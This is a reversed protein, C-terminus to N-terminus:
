LTFLIYELPQAKVIRVVKSTKSFLLSIQFCKQLFAAYICKGEKRYTYLM